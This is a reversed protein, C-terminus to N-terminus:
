LSHYYNYQQNNLYSRVQNSENIKEMIEKEKQKEIIKDQAVKCMVKFIISFTSGEGEASKVNVTGGM